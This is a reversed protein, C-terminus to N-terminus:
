LLNSKSHQHLHSSLFVSMALLLISTYNNMLIVSHDTLSFGTMAVIFTLGLVSTNKHRNFDKLFIVFPYYFLLLITLLGFIGKAITVELFTNHTYSYEALVPHVKKEHILDKIANNYNGPGIGMLYNNKVIIAGTRIMELRIGTSTASSADTTHNEAQFYNNVNSIATDAGKQVTTSYQYFMFLTFSISLVSAIVWRPKSYFFAYALSIFIFGIYSGRSGSLGATAFSLSISILITTVKLKNLQQYNQWLYHFAWFGTLVALPGIINKSYVGWATAMGLIYVDYYAQAFLIFGSFIAGRLLWISCDSYRRLLIYLPIVLLFRM